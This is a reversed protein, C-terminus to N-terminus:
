GIERGITVYVQHIKPTVSLIYRKMIATSCPSSVPKLEQPERLVASDSILGRANCNEFIGSFNRPNHESSSSEQDEGPAVIM